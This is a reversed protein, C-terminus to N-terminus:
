TNHGSVYLNACVFVCVCVCVCVCLDYEASIRNSLRSFMIAERGPEHLGAMCLSSLVTEGMLFHTTNMYMICTYLSTMNKVIFIYPHKLRLTTIETSAM